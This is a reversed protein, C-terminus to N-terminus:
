RGGRMARTTDILDFEEDAVLHAVSVAHNGIRWIAAGNPLNPLHRAEEATLGLAERTAPVQEPQQRMVVRVETDALLGAAIKAGASGDASQATLDALRHAVSINCVGYERALKQSHQYYRTTTENGLLAWIEELVQVRQPMNPGKRMVLNQLWATLCVMAPAFAADNSSIASLDVAVGRDAAADVKVTSEGNFLGGLSGDDLLKRLALQVGRTEIRYEEAGVVGAILMEETPDCLRNHVDSLTAGTPPLAKVALTAASDELPSLDRRLVAALLASLMSSRRRQAEAPTLEAAVDLPNLRHASGPRLRIHQMGLVEAVAEYEGKPDLVAAFRPRRNEGSGLLGLSRLLFTKVVTSKGAGVIGIIIINPCTILGSQYAWFPDFYFGGDASLDEGLFVGQVGLTSTSQWPYLVCLHRTTTRHRPVSLFDTNSTGFMDGMAASDLTADHDMWANTAYRTRAPPNAPPAEIAVM